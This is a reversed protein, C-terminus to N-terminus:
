MKLSFQGKREWFGCAILLEETQPTPELAGGEEKSPHQSSRTCSRLLCGCRNPIGLHLSETVDLVYQKAKTTGFRQSKGDDGKKETITGL